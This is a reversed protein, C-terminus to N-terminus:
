TYNMFIAVLPNPDLDKVCTLPESISKEARKLELQLQSDKM